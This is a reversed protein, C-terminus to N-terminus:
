NAKYTKIRFALMISFIGSLIAFAGFVMLMVGAGQILNGALLIGFIISVVGNLILLWENTIVKRMKVAGIIHIIGSLIAWAAIFIMIGGLASVPNLLVVIGAGLFILGEIIRLGRNDTEGLFALTLIFFGSLIAFFAFFTILSFIVIYPSALALVGFLIALVGRVAILWWNKQLTELM